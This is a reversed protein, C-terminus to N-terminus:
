KRLYQIVTVEEPVVDYVEVNRGHADIDSDGSTELYRIAIFNDEADTYIAEVIEGWRWVDLITEQVEQLDTEEEVVSLPHVYSSKKVAAQWLNWYTEALSM